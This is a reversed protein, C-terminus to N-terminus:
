IFSNMKVAWQTSDEVIFFEIQVMCETSDAVFFASLGYVCHITDGTRNTLILNESDNVWILDSTVCSIHRCDRIGALTLSHQVEPFSMLKVVSGIEVSRYGRETIKMGSLSKVIDEINFSNTMSLQNTHRSLKIQPFCTNRTSLFHLPSNTSQKFLHMYGQLMIIHGKMEIEQKLCRHKFDFDCFVNNMFDRQVLDVLDILKRAKTVMESQYLSVSSHFSKIDAKINPLLIPIYFLAESRIAHITKRYQERKTIYAKRVDLMKQKKHLKCHRFVPVECSECYKRCVFNSHKANIKQQQISNFKNRYPVVNHDITKLDKSHSEKCNSCLDDLCWECYYSTEEFCRSCQLTKYPISSIDM